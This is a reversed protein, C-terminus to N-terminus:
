YNANCEIKIFNHKLWQENTILFTMFGSFQLEIKNVLCIWWFATLVDHNGKEKLHPATLAVHCVLCRKLSWSMIIPPDMSQSCIDVYHSNMNLAYLIWLNHACQPPPLDAWIHVTCLMVLLSRGPKTFATSLNLCFHYAVATVFNVWFFQSPSQSM